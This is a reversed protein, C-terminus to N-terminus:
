ASQEIPEALCRILYEDHDALKLAAVTGFPASQLLVHIANRFADFEAELTENRKQYREAKEKYGSLEAVQKALHDAAHDKHLYVREGCRFRDTPFLFKNSPHYGGIAWDWQRKFQAQTNSKVENFAETYTVGRNGAQSAFSKIAKFVCVYSVNDCM